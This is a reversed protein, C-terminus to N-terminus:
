ASVENWLSQTISEVHVIPQKVEAKPKKSKRAPRKVDTILLMEGMREQAIPAFCGYGGWEGKDYNTDGSELRLRFAHLTM